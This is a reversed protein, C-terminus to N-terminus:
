QCAINLSPQQEDNWLEELKFDFDMTMLDNMLDGSEFGDFIPIKDLAEFENFGYGYDNNCNSEQQQLAMELEKFIDLEPVQNDEEEQQQEQQPFEPKRERDEKIPISNGAVDYAVSTSVDLVSSPSSHSFQTESYDSVSPNTASMASSISNNNKKKESLTINELELEFKRSAEEYAEKALEATDYTGLWVRVGRIPDRIEAAWKGWRRQRVGKYKPTSGSIIKQLSVRKRPNKGIQKPNKVGTNKNESNESEFISSKPETFPVRFERINRKFGGNKEIREVDSSDTADPDDCIIRIKRTKKTIEESSIRKKKGKRGCIKEKSLCKRQPAAM